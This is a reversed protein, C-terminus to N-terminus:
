KERVTKELKNKLTKHTITNVDAHPNPNDYHGGTKILSKLYFQLYASTDNM